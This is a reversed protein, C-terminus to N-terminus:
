DDRLEQTYPIKIAAQYEPTFKIEKLPEVGNEKLFSALEDGKLNGQRDLSRAAKKFVRPDVSRLLDHATVCSANITLKKSGEDISGNPELALVKASEIVKTQDSYSARDHTEEYAMWVDPIINVLQDSAILEIDLRDPKVSLDKFQESYTYPPKELEDPEIINNENLSAFGRVGSPHDPTLFTNFTHKPGYLFYSALAHKMEHCAVESPPKPDKLHKPVMDGYKAVIKYLGHSQPVTIPDLMKIKENYSKFAMAPKNPRLNLNLM